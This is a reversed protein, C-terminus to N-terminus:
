NKNLNKRKNYIIPYPNDYKQLSAECLIGLSTNRMKREANSKVHSIWEDDEELFEYGKRMGGECLAVMFDIDNACATEIILNTADCPMFGILMQANGISTDRDFMQPKLILNPIDTEYGILRPDYVTIIGSHQNLAIKKALSPVTGGAVEIIPRDICFNEKLITLFAEYMSREQEILGTEEYIQRVLEHIYTTGLGLAANATIMEKELRTYRSSHKSLYESVRKRYEEKSLQEM